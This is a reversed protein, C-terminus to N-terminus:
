VRLKDLDHGLLVAFCPPGTFIKICRWMDVHDRHNSRAKFHRSIGPTRLLLEHEAGFDLRWLERCSSSMNILHQHM